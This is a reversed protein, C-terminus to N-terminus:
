ERSITSKGSGDTGLVAIVFGPKINFIRKINQFTVFIQKPIDYNIVSKRMIKSMLSFKLTIEELSNNNHIINWFKDCYLTSLEKYVPAAKIFNPRTGIIHIVKKM